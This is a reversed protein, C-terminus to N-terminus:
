TDMTILLRNIEENIESTNAGDLSCTIKISRTVNDDVDPLSMVENYLQNVFHDISKLASSPLNYLLDLLRTYKEDVHLSKFYLGWSILRQYLSAYQKSIYMMMELNSPEGPEGISDQIATLDERVQKLDYCTSSVFVTPKTDSAYHYGRNM